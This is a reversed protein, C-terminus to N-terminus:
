KYRKEITLELYKGFLRYTITLMEPNIFSVSCEPNCFIINYYLLQLKRVLNTYRYLFGLDIAELCFGEYILCDVLAIEKIREATISDITPCVSRIYADVSSADLLTVIRVM